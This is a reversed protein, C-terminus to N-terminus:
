KTSCDWVTVDDYDISTKPAPAMPEWYPGLQIQDFDVSSTTLDGKSAQGDFIVDVHVGQANPTVRYALKHVAGAAGIPGVVLAPGGDIATLEWGGTQLSLVLNKSAKEVVQHVVYTQELSAMAFSLQVAFSPGLKGRTIVAFAPGDGGAVKGRAVGGTPGAFASIDNGSGTTDPTWGALSPGADDEFTSSFARAPDTGTCGKAVAPIDLPAADPISSEAADAGGDTVPTTGSSSSCSWGAAVMSMALAASAAVTPSRMGRMGGVM